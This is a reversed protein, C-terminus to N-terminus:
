KSWFRNVPFLTANVPPSPNAFPLGLDNRPPFMDSIPLEDIDTSKDLVGLYGKEFARIRDTWAKATGYILSGDIWPTM